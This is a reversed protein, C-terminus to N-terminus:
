ETTTDPTPPTETATHREREEERAREEVHRIYASIGLVSLAGALFTIANTVLHEFPKDNFYM